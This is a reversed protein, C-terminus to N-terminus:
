TIRLWGCGPKGGGAGDDIFLFTGAIFSKFELDIFEAGHEGVGLLIAGGKGGMIVM